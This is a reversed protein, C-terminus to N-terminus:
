FLLHDCHEFEVSSKKSPHTFVSWFPSMVCFLPIKQTNKHSKLVKGLGCVCVPSWIGAPPRGLDLRSDSLRHFYFSFLTKFALLLFLFSTVLLSRQSNLFIANRKREFKSKEEILRMWESFFSAEWDSSRFSIILILSNNKKLYRTIM